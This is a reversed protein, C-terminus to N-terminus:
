GSRFASALQRLADAQAALQQSTAALDEASRAKERTGAEVESVARCVEGLDATQEGSSAVTREVALAEMKRSEKVTGAIYEQVQEVIATTEGVASAASCTSASLKM